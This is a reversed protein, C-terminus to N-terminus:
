YTYSVFNLFYNKLNEADEITEFYKTISKLFCLM